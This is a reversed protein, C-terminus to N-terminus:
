KNLETFVAPFEAKTIYYMKNYQVEVVKESVAPTNLPSFQKFFELAVVAPKENLCLLHFLKGQCESIL